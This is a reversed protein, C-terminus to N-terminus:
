ARRRKLASRLKRLTMLAASRQGVQFMCNPDDDDRDQMVDDRRAAYAYLWRQLEAIVAKLEDVRADSAKSSM